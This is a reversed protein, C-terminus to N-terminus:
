RRGAPSSTWMGTGLSLNLTGSAVVHVSSEGFLQDGLVADVLVAVAAVCVLPAREQPLVGGNAFAAHVAVFRMAAVVDSQESDALWSEALLAMVLASVRGRRKGTTSDPDSWRGAIGPGSSRGRDVVVDV